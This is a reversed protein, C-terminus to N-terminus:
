SPCHCEVLQFLLPHTPPAPSVGQLGEQGEVLEQLRQSLQGERVARNELDCQGVDQRVVTQSVLVAFCLKKQLCLNLGVPLIKNFLLLWIM